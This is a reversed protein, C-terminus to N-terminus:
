KNGNQRTYLRVFTEQGVARGVERIAVHLASEVTSTNQIKQSISAILAEREARAQVEAYSRANQVAIAIQSAMITQIDVNEQSFRDVIDSQVDFVGIVTDSVIMPVALEARTNPLLPHSLFNPASRVDNVIIGRRERAARAVLSQESDFSIRHGEEVMQRGADGAGAALVLTDGAENLLYIHAHYLGFQQKTLNSVNWLLKDVNLSTSSAASVESVTQLEAARQAITALTRKIQQAMGNFANALTGIEDRSLIEVQVDYNGAEVENATAILVNVPQTIQRSLGISLVVAALSAILVILVTFLLAQSASETAREIDKTRVQTGTSALKEMLPEMSFAADQFVQTSAAIEIDKEVLADFAVVYKDALVSLNSKETSTILRSATIQKKLDTVSQHVQDIYVTEGHLLYDKEHHRIQLMTIVLSDFAPRGYIQNEIEHVATRLEGELGTDEFGREQLLQVTQQFNQEYLDVNQELLAIDADFQAHTYFTGLDGEVIEGFGALISLHERIEAVSEQYPLIYNAHTTEFGEIKSRNLFDKEYRRAALLDKSLHLSNTEMAVGEDISEEFFRRVNNLGTYSVVGIVLALISLTNFSFLLKHALSLNRWTVLRGLMLFGITAVTGAAILPIAYQVAPILPRDWPAFRDLFFISAAFAFGLIRTRNALPGTLTEFVIEVIVIALAISLGLGIGGMVATMALVIYCVSGVLLLGAIDARNRRAFRIVLVEGMFFGTFAASAAYAQWVGTQLAVYIFILVALSAAVIFVLALRIANRGQETARAFLQSFWNKM